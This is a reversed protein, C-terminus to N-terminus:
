IDLIKKYIEFTTRTDSLATHAKKNTVGFYQALAELSFKQANPDNYLKVFAMPILDIRHFHMRPKIDMQVFAKELFVWDFTVNQGVMITGKTKKALIELVEKLPRADKWGEESYGNIALAEPDADEIHEPRVKFVFEEAVEVTPGMGERPIQRVIICGVEIIEHIEPDLGTTELDIFALKHVKMGYSIPFM